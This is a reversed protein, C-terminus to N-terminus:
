RADKFNFEANLAIDVSEKFTSPHVHFNENPVGTRIGEMFYDSPGDRSSSEAAYCYLLM